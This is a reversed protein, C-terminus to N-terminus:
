IPGTLRMWGPFYHLLDPFWELAINELARNPFFTRCLLSRASLNVRRVKGENPYFYSILSHSAFDWENGFHVSM